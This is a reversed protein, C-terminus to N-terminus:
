TSIMSLSSGGWNVDESGLGVSMPCVRGASKAGLNSIDESSADM